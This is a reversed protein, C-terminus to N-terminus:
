TTSRSARNDLWLDEMFKLPDTQWPGGLGRIRQHAVATRLQPVLYTVPVEERFIKRLESYIGDQVDPDATVHVRNVLEVVRANQYGLSNARTYDFPSLGQQKDFAAEPFEGSKIKARAAPDMQVAMDVGVRRLQAQVYTAMQQYAGSTLATFQFALGERERVGGGTPDHWGAAELLERAQMPDHPLPEALERRLFQRWTVPGDTLPAEKPLHLLQLLEHRDIALTLARRVRADRFLPHRHQWMIAAYYDPTESYYVHFRSDAALSPIWVPNVRSLADVDGALLDALGAQGVFKLLVREIKPKSRYYDPNAEFEMMTQPQYRVFRYPGNGVPRKWFDWDYFREPDLGELLHKPYPIEMWQYDQVDRHRVRLTYDDLVAISELVSGPPFEGVKSWLELSFKVDHATVPVGVHWRVGPRLYYTWERYDSSHEWREALRGEWEVKDNMAMLPLFALWLPDDFWPTPNLYGGDGPVAVIVTNGRAYARDKVQGCGAAALALMQLLWERRAIAALLARRQPTLGERSRRAM